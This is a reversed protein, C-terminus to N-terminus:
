PRPPNKVMRYGVFGRGAEVRYSFLFQGPAAWHEHEEEYQGRGGSRFRRDPEVQNEFFDILEATRADNEFYYASLAHRDNQLEVCVTLTRRPVLVNPPIRSLDCDVFRLRAGPVERRPLLVYRGGTRESVRYAHRWKELPEVRLQPNDRELARRDAEFPTLEDNAAYRAQLWLALAVLAAFFVLVGASLRLLDVFRSRQPM